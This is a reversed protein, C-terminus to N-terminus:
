NSAGTASASYSPVAMSDKFHAVLNLTHRVSLSADVAADVDNSSSEPASSSPFEIVDVELKRVSSVKRLSSRHSCTSHKMTAFKADHLFTLATLRRSRVIEREGTEHIPALM